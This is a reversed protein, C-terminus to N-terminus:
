ACVVFSHACFSVHLHASINNSYIKKVIVASFSGLLGFFNSHSTHPWNNVPDVPSAWWRFDWSPLQSLLHLLTFYNIEKIKLHNIKWITDLSSLRKLATLTTLSERGLDPHLVVFKECMQTLELTQLKKDAAATGRLNGNQKIKHKCRLVLFRFLLTRNASLHDSRNYRM